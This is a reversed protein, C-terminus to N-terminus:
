RKLIKYIRKHKDYKLLLLYQGSPLRKLDTIRNEATKGQILKQGMLNYISYEYESSLGYIYLIDIFPNPAIDIISNNNLFNSTSLPTGYSGVYELSCDFYINFKWYRRWVCGNLCDMWGVSYILEIFEPFISVYIDNGDGVLFLPDSFFVGPITEYIDSLPITNYNSDSKFTVTHYDFLGYNTEYSDITLDYLIMLSDVISNSTPIIGNRINQMWLLTSDAAVTFYNIDPIPFTHIDFLNVVTDRAPLSVANYVAILADLISDSQEQPIEISDVYTLNYQFIRELALRDADSNYRAIITDPADCSSPVTQGIVNQVFFIFVILNTVTRM